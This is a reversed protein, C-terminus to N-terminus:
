NFSADFPRTEVEFPTSLPAAFAYQWGNEDTDANVVVKWQYRYSQGGLFIMAQVHRGVHVRSM